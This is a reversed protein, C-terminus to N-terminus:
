VSDRSHNLVQRVTKILQANDTKAKTLSAAVKLSIDKNTDEGSFIIVPCRDKIDDLLDLGSGDPLSIDLIVLDYDQLLIRQKAEALSTVYDIDGLEELIVHTIQVVDLDDEVHLVRPRSNIRMVQELANSLRAHDVPKQIWDVIALADGKFEQRGETARASVVIVPLQTDGNGDRIDQLLQLGDGDPLMLDLMLLQYDRSALLLKADKLTVAVDSLFGNDALLESLVDAVDANDECILVRPKEPDLQSSITTGKWLPIDFFFQTDEGERSVFDIHGGHREVIAKTIALGLGTGGKDRTDSSDAQAFRDFIRSRFEEPILPGRNRVSLRLKDNLSQLVISVVGDKDSYKIANSILNAMVQLLRHDDAYIDSAADTEDVFKLQVQHSRAFAENEELARKVLVSFDLRKLDFELQGADMKELDLIDNILYTLRESNRSAMELMYRTKDSLENGMKGLVLSLAGRISTLPTRLEHSVTSVFENKMREVKKRETIDRVVSTFYRRGGLLMDNVAFEIPVLSSDKKIGNAEVRFGIVRSTGTSLYDSLYEMYQSSEEPSLLLSFPKGVLENQEYGFLDSGAVNLSEIVGMENFTIIGDAVTNLINGLRAANDHLESEVQIRTMENGVWQSFIRLLSFDGDSFPTDRSEKSSFSLTGYLEGKVMLPVGIFAKLGSKSYCPHQSEHMKHYGIASNAMIVEKCCTDSLMRESKAAPADEPGSSFEVRHNQGEIHSIVAVPLRFFKRGLVLLAHIKHSFDLNPAATINHLKELSHAYQQSEYELIKRDTVDRVFEVFLATSGPEKVLQLLIEVHFDSGDKRRHLTEFHLVQQEDNLLPKILERFETETILPKIDYPTMQMMEERAYGMSEVAVRNLYTFSLTDVEFMFIMDLTNDVVYKIRDLEKIAQKSVSIDRTIGIFFSEDSVKIESVALDLPFIEGNKRKGHVERGLGIVKKEGTNLYNSLYTDHEDAYPAPMLMKVNQGIVENARYGFMHEAAKNYSQVIGQPTITILGDLINDVIAQLQAQSAHLSRSTDHGFQESHERKRIMRSLYVLLVITLILVLITVAWSMWIAGSILDPDIPRAVILWRKDVVQISYTWSTNSRAEKFDLPPAQTNKRLSSQYIQLLRSDSSSLVDYLYLDVGSINEKQLYLDSHLSKVTNIASIDAKVFGRLKDNGQQLMGAVTDRYYVPVFVIYQDILGKDSSEKDLTALVAKESMRSAKMREALYDDVSLDVGIMQTDASRSKIFLFPFYESKKEIRSKAVPDVGKNGQVDSYISHGLESEFEGRESDNVKPLWSVTILDPTTDFMAAVFVDFSSSSLDPTNDVFAVVSRIARLNIHMNEELALVHEYADREFLSVVKKYEYSSVVSYAFVSLAIGVSATVIIPLM